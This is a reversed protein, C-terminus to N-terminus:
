DIYFMNKSKLICCLLFINNEAGNNDVLVLYEKQKLYCEYTVDRLYSFTRIRMVDSIFSTFASSPFSDTLNLDSLDPKSGVM